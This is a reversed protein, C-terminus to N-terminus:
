VESARKSLPPGSEAASQRLFEKRRADVGSHIQPTTRLAGITHPSGRSAMTILPSPPIGLRVLFTSRIQQPTRVLAMKQEKMVRTDILTNVAEIQNLGIFHTQKQQTKMAIDRALKDAEMEEVSLTGTLSHWLTLLPTLFRYVVLGSMIVLLGLLDISQMPQANPMFSLSFAVNSLPVIVTSSLWLINASGYKLIVIILVNYVVNFVIYTWVFVPAMDCNDIQLTETAETVTNVGFSCWLGAWLNPLIDQLPLSILM